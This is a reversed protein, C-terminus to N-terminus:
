SFTDIIHNSVSLCTVTEACYTANIVFAPLENPLFINVSCELLETPSLDFKTHIGCQYLHTGRLGHVFMCPLTRSGAEVLGIFHTAQLSYEGYYSGKINTGAEIREPFTNALVTRGQYHSDRGGQRTLFIVGRFNARCPLNSQREM